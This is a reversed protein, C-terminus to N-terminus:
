LKIKGENYAVILKGVVANKNTSKTKKVVNVGFDLWVTRPVEITTKINSPNTTGM